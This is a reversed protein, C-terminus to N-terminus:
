PQLPLEDLRFRSIISRATTAGVISIPAYNKGAYFVLTPISKIELQSVIAPNQDVNIKVVRVRNGHTKVVSELERAIGKCPVCWPAWLDVIVPTKSDLVEKKYQKETIDTITGM